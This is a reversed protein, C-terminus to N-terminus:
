WEGFFPYICLVTQDSADCFSDIQDFLWDRGSFHRRKEDVFALVDHLLCQSDIETMFVEALPITVPFSFM